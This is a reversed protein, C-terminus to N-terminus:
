NTDAHLQTHQAGGLLLGGRCSASCGVDLLLCSHWVACCARVLLWLFPLLPHLGNARIWSGYSQLLEQPVGMTFGPVFFQKMGAYLEFYKVAAEMVATQNITIGPSTSTALILGAEDNIAYIDQLQPFTPVQYTNLLEVTNPYAKPIGTPPQVGLLAKTSQGAKCIGPQRDFTM